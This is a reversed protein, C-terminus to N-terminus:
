RCVVLLEQETISNMSRLALNHSNSSSVASSSVMNTDLGVTSVEICIKSNLGVRDIEVCDVDVRDTEGILHLYFVGDSRLM